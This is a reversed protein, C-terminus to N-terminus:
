LVYSWEGSTDSFSQQHLVARSDRSIVKLQKMVVMELLQHVSALFDYTGYVQQLHVSLSIHVSYKLCSTAKHYKIRKQLWGFSNM